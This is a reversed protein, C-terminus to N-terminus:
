SSCTIPQNKAFGFYSKYQNVERPSLDLKDVVGKIVLCADGSRGLQKLLVAYWYGIDPRQPAWHHALEMNSLIVKKKKAPLDRLGVRNMYSFTYAYRGEVDYVNNNIYKILARRVKKLVPVHLDPQSSMNETNKYLLMLAQARRLEISSSADVDGLVDLGKQWEKQQAYNFALIEKMKESNPYKALASLLKKERKETSNFNAIIEAEITKGELKPLKRVELDYDFSADVTVYTLSLKRSKWLAYLRKDLEGVSVGLVSQVADEAPVGDAQAQLLVQIKPRFEPFHNLYHTLYWSQAYFLNTGERSNGKKLRTTRASMVEGFSAWKRTTQLIPLRSMVQTGLTLKNDKYTFSSLYDAFGESYWKPFWRGSYQHTIYHVYEHFLIERPDSGFKWRKKQGIAVAIPGSRANKYKGATTESDTLKEYNSQSGVIYLKLPVATEDTEVGNFKLLFYRFAELDEILKRTHKDKAKSYIVFNQTKYQVWSAAFAAQSLLLAALGVCLCRIVSIGRVLSIM